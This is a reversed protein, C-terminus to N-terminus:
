NTNSRHQELRVDKLRFGHDPFRKHSSALDSSELVPRAVFLRETLIIEQLNQRFAGFKRLTMGQIIQLVPTFKDGSIVILTM